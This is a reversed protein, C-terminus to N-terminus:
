AEVIELFMSTMMVFENAVLLKAFDYSFDLAETRDTTWYDSKSCMHRTKSSTPSAVKLYKGAFISDPTSDLFKILYRKESM